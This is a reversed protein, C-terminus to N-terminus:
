RNDDTNKHVAEELNLSLRNISFVPAKILISIRRFSLIKQWFTNHTRPIFYYGRLLQHHAPYRLRYLSQNRAPRDPSRVGNPALNEAGTWVPGPAWGAEQVTPVPDKGPHSPLSRGPRSASGESGELAMTM